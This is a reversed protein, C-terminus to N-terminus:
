AASAAARGGVRWWLPHVRQWLPAVLRDQVAVVRPSLAIEANYFRELTGGWKKKFEWVGHRPDGPDADPTCGGFDFRRLGMARAARIAAWFCAAPAQYLTQARDRTSAGQFYLMTDGHVLCLIGAILAGGHRALFIRAHGAPALRQWRIV